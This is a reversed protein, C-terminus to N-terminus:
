EATFVVKLSGDQQVEYALPIGEAWLIKGALHKGVYGNEDVVVKQSGDIDYGEYIGNEDIICIEGPSGETSSTNYSTNNFETLENSVIDLEYLKGSSVEVYFSGLTTFKDPTDEGVVISYYEVGDIVEISDDRLSFDQYRSEVNEAVIDIATDLDIGNNLNTDDSIIIGELENSDVYDILKNDEFAFRVEKKTDSGKYYSYTKVGQRDFVLEGEYGFLSVLMDYNMGEQVKNLQEGTIYRPAEQNNNFTNQSSTIRNSDKNFLDTNIIVLIVIVLVICIGLIAAILKKSNHPKDVKNSISTHNKDDTTEVNNFVGQILNNKSGCNPCFVSNETLEKGCKICYM